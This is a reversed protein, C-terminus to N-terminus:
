LVVLIGRRTLVSPDNEIIQFLRRAVGSPTNTGAEWAEVTKVSVGCAIAFSSQALRLEQRLEKVNKATYTPVPKILLKTTRLKLKGERHAKVEKLGQMIGDFYENEQKGYRL